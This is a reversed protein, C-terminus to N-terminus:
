VNYPKIYYPFFYTGYKTCIAEGKDYKNGTEHANWVVEAHKDLWCGKPRDSRDVISNYWFQKEIDFSAQVCENINRLTDQGADSCIKGSETIEFRM